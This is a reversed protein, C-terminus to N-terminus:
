NEEEQQSTFIKKTYPMKKRLAKIFKYEVEEPLKCNFSVMEEQQTILLKLNTFTYEADDQVEIIVSKIDKWEFSLKMFFFKKHIYLHEDDIIFNNYQWIFMLPGIIFFIITVLTVWFGQYDTITYYILTILVFVAFALLICHWIFAYISRNFSQQPLKKAVTNEKALLPAKEKKPSSKLLIEYATWFNDSTNQKYKAWLKRAKREKKSPKKQKIM